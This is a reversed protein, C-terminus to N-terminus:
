KDSSQLRVACLVLQAGHKHKTKGQTCLPEARSCCREGDCLHVLKGELIQQAKVSHAFM